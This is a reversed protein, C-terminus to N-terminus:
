AQYFLMNMTALTVGYAGVLAWDSRGRDRIRPRAIALLLVASIALRLAAVGLEGVKPFVQVAVAAGLQQSLLASLVLAVTGVQGGRHHGALHRAPTMPAADARVDIM